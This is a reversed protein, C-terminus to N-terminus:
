ESTTASRARTSTSSSRGRRKSSTPTAPDKGPEAAPEAPAVKPFEMDAGYADFDLDALPVGRGARRLGLWVFVLLSTPGWRILPVGTEPNRVPEGTEPHVVPDGNMARQYDVGAEDLEIAEQVMLKDLDVELWEACGYMERDEKSLRIRIM